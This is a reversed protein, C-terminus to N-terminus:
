GSSTRALRESDGSSSRDHPPPQEARFLARASVLVRRLSDARRLPPRLRRSQTHHAVLPACLGTQARRQRRPSHSLSSRLRLTQKHLNTGAGDSSAAISSPACPASLTSVYLTLDSAPPRRGANRECFCPHVWRTFVIERGVCGLICFSFLM